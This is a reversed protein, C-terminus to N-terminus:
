RHTSRPPSPKQLDQAQEAMVRGLEARSRIRLKQYIRVLNAEVTKPSIMMEAAVEKNTRGTAALEAVRQESPTLGAAVPHIGLRALERDVKATWLPAGIANFAARAADLSSRASRRTGARRQLQGLVLLTRALEFPMSLREHERVAQDCEDTAQALNGQRAMLLSRCRRGAAIAWARESRRGMDELWHVMAEAEGLRDVRILAEAADPAFPVASPERVGVSIARMVMPALRHAATEYDDLSVDIFGLTAIPVLSVTAINGERLIALCKEADRRAPGVEGAFASSHAQASLALALPLRTGLQLARKHVEAAVARAAKVNGRWCELTELHFGTYVLDSEAGHEIFTTRLSTLIEHAEDLRGSWMHILGAIMSPRTEITMPDQRDELALARDLTSQEWPESALFRLACSLSLARALLWDLGATQAGAIAADSHALAEGLRGLNYLAFALELEIRVALAHGPTSEELAAELLSAADSYTDDHIRVTALARRAEARLQGPELPPIIEELMTRARALDGADFHFRAASVRRAPDTAGLQIALDLLEAAAAPAGRQAAKVAASDLVAVAEPEPGYAALALHRAREEIDLPLGALRRHIARRSKMTALAYAGAALMPHTFRIAPGDVELIQLEEARELVAAAGPGVARTMLQVTPAALASATLLADRVEPDVRRLRAKTLEVLSMPLGTQLQSTDNAGLTLVVEVAYFPNGASASFLRSMVPRSLSRGTRLRVVEHLSAETMPGVKVRRVNEDRALRVPYQHANGTRVATVLGFAGEIRRVGFAIAQASTRDLWQFDDIGVIVPAKSALARLVSLMAAAVARPDVMGISSAERLMVAGLAERQPTPLTAFVRDDIAALLDAISSYSLRAEAEAPRCALIIYGREEARTLAERWLTTKGIGADGYFVCAVPGQNISDLVDEITQLEAARGVVAL